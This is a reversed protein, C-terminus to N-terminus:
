RPQLGAKLGRSCFGIGRQRPDAVAGAVPNGPFAIGGLSPPGRLSARVRPLAYRRTGARVTRASSRAKAATTKGCITPITM